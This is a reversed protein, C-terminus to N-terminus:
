SISIKLEKLLQEKKKTSISTTWKGNRYTKYTKSLEDLFREISMGKLTEHENIVKLIRSYIIMQIQIIFDHGLITKLDHKRIADEDLSTKQLRINTEILWRQKYMFYPKEIDFNCNSRMTIIGSYKSREENKELTYGEKNRHINALYNNEQVAAIFPDKYCYLFQDLENVKFAKIFKDEFKFTTDFSSKSILSKLMKSNDNLPMIFKINNELLYNINEESNFGKDIIIVTNKLNFKGLVSIFAQKDIVNGPIVESYVPELNNLDYVKIKNIQKRKTKKYNRGYESFENNGDNVFTTGDFILIEHNKIRQILFEKNLSDYTGLEKIFSAVSNKSVAINPYDESIFSHYYNDQFWEYRNEFLIGLLSYVYIKLGTDPGFFKILDDRIDKALNDLFKYNGYTKIPAIDERARKPDEVYVFEGNIEVISGIYPLSKKAPRKKQKDWYSIYPVVRYKDGYLRIETKEPRKVKKIHEPILSM